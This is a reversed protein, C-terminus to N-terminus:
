ATRWCWAYYGVIFLTILLGLFERAPEIYRDKGDMAGTISGFDGAQLYDSFGPAAYVMGTVLIGITLAALFPMPKALAHLPSAAFFYHVIKTPLDGRIHSLM